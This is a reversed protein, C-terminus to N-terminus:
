DPSGVSCVCFHQRDERSVYKDFKPRSLVDSLETLTAESLMPTGWALAHDVARAATGGPMLLRSVWLNTDVVLKREASLLDQLVDETMWADVAKAGVRDSFRQFEAVNLHVLREYEQMSMVVAVDRKQRQIVVSERRAAELVDALGQRAESATVTRM